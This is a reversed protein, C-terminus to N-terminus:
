SFVNQVGDDLSIIVSKTQTYNNLVEFSYERGFGSQKYGGVPMGSIFNYYRNVWVTGTELARAIRHARTINKTWLGGGLGYDCDNAMRILEDEDSWSIVVSVPGFIEEQAIRM